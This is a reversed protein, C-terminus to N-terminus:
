QVYREKGADEWQNIGAEPSAEPVEQEAGKCGDKAKRSAAEEQYADSCGGDLYPMGTKECFHIEPMRDGTMSEQLGMTVSHREALREASM